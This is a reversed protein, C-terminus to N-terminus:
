LRRLTEKPYTMFWTRLVIMAKRNAEVVRTKSDKCETWSQFAVIHRENNDSLVWYGFPSLMWSEKKEEHDDGEMSKELPPTMSQEDSTTTEEKGWNREDWDLDLGTACIIGDSPDVNTAGALGLERVLLKTRNEFCTRYNYRPVFNPIMTSLAKRLEIPGRWFPVLIRQRIVSREKAKCEITPTRDWGYVM